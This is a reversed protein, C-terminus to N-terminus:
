LGRQSTKWVWLKRQPELRVQWLPASISCSSRALLRTSKFVPCCVSMQMGVPEVREMSKVRQIRDIAGWRSQVTRLSRWPLSWKGTMIWIEVRPGARSCAGSQMRVLAAQASNRADMWRESLDKSSLLEIVVCKVLAMKVAAISLIGCDEPVVRWGWNWPRIPVTFNGGLGLFSCQSHELAVVM